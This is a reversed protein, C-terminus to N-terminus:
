GNAEDHSGGEAAGPVPHWAWHAAAAARAAQQMAMIELTSARSVRPRKDQFFGCLDYMLAMYYDTVAVDRWQGGGYIGMTFPVGEGQTIRATRGDGYRYLFHLNGQGPYCLCQRAGRGMIYEVMEFQHISYNALDGPGTTACYAAPRGDLLCAFSQLEMVYRQASCTFVPTGFQGARDFMRRAAEWTPAFTKDCYVPKGSALAAAALAEHQACDDAGMVLLGDAGAILEAESQTLRIGQRQCWAQNSLCGAPAEYMAWAATVAIDVGYRRAALRLYEPYHDTHWNNLWLDIIGIRIM